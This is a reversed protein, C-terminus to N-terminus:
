ILKKEHRHKPDYELTPTSALWLRREAVVEFLTHRPHKVEHPHYSSGPHWTSVIFAAQGDLTCPCFQLLGRAIIQQPYISQVIFRHGGDPDEVLLNITGQHLPTGITRAFLPHALFGTALGQGPVVRGVLTQKM